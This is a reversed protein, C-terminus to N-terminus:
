NQQFAFLSTYSGRLEINCERLFDMLEENANGIRIDDPIYVRGDKWEDDWTHKHPQRVVEKTKPDRHFAHVTYKRIPTNRYLLAFSRNTKGVFGRLSLIEDSDLCLVKAEPRFGQGARKWSLNMGIVKPEDILRRAEAETVM